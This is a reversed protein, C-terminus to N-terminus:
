LSIEWNLGDPSTNTHGKTDFVYEAIANKVQNRFGNIQHAMRLYEDYKDPHEAMQDKCYWIHLDMQALYIILKILRASLEINREGILIDIDTSIKQIDSKLTENKPLKVEKIQNVTLLGILETLPYNYERM